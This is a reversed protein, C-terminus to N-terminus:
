GETLPRVTLTQLAHGVPGVSDHLVTSTLGHGTPGFSVTTDLGAWRGEPRRHLHITLDMNPFMWEKPSRQVAIGNATDVLGIYSALPSSPEGSVLDVRSSLWVTGRGPSAPAGRRIDISSIYGGDWVDGMQWPTFEEPPAIREQPTDAVASTDLTALLWARARVVSRGGIHVVAELLEITRGPRITEVTIECEELAIRGLIDYSIRTLALGKAPQESAALYRDIEHVVLGALPSVHQEDTSWAGGAHATPKYRHEGVRQYYSDPAASPTTM